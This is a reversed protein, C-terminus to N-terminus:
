QKRLIHDKGPKVERLHSDLEQLAGDKMRLYCYVVKGNKDDLEVVTANEDKASGKIVTWSGDMVTSEEVKGRPMSLLSYTGMDCYPCHRLTLYTAYVVGKYPIDASFADTLISDAAAKQAWVNDSFLSFM